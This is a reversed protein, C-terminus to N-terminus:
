RKEIRTPSSASAAARTGAAISDAAMPPVTM